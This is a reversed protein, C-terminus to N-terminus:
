HIMTATFFDMFFNVVLYSISLSFLLYVFRSQYYRNKKFIGNINISELAWITFPVFFIYLVVRLM